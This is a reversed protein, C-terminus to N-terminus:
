KKAWKPSMKTVKKTNKPTRKRYAFFSLFPTSFQHREDKIEAIHSCLPALNWLICAEVFDSFFCGLVVSFSSWFRRFHSLISHWFSVQFKAGLLTLFVYFNAWKPSWKPMLFQVKAHWICRSPWSLGWLSLISLFSAWLLGLNILFLSFRVLISSFYAESPPFICFIANVCAKITEVNTELIERINWYNVPCQQSNSPMAPFQQANSPM